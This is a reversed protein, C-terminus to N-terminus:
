AGIAARVAKTLESARADGYGGMQNSLYAFGVGHEVDGFGLQGGAGAHGFSGPGLMPQTPPSALQFGTGWRSGDDPMGSLQQGSSRPRLGDEITARRLLPPGNIGTVCAAYLRALSEATSVGNAAPIEAEQIAPDNFTVYGHEAPFGFAGCMTLSRDVVPNQEAIRASERAADSDEDPLPPEMWAVSARITDPIGIWTRLELPDGITARFFRGPSLGSVRRIVEGVLWGYTMAHYLHGRDPAHLPRQDELARIVPDWALVDALSLDTDLSALGARHSLAERVTIAAKGRQGFGPWYDAIPQDLDIRGEEVLLYTCIALIAKSCSFIVAATNRDWVRGTRADAIGGWLDVAPRGGVYVACAAGLDHRKTFNAAFADLVAGFREEAFGHIRRGDALELVTLGDVTTRSTM